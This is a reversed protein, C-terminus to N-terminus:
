KMRLQMCVVVIVVNGLVCVCVVILGGRGRRNERGYREREIIKKKRTATEGECEKEGFM